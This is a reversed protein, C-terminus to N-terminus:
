NRFRVSVIQAELAAIQAQLRAETSRLERMSMDYYHKSIVDARRSIASYCARCVYVSEFGQDCSELPGRNASGKQMPSIESSMPFFHIGSGTVDRGCFWCTCAQAYEKIRTLNSEGNEGLQRRYNYAIQEYEAAKKPDSWVTSEALCENGIAMLTLGKKLGTVTTVGNYIEPVMLSGQGFNMQYKQALEILKHGKNQKAAGSGSLAMTDIEDATPECELALKETDVATLGFEFSPISSSKLIEAARRYVRSEGLRGNLDLVAVMLTALDDKGGEKVISKEFIKKAKEFEKRKVLDLAEEYFDDGTKFLGFAM